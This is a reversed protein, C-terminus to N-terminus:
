KPVCKQTVDIYLSVYVRVHTTKKRSCARWNKSDRQRDEVYKGWYDM